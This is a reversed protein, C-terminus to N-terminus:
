GPVSDGGWPAAVITGAKIRRLDAAGVDVLLAGDAAIGAGIGVIQESLADVTLKRGLLWDYRAWEEAIGNFGDAEFNTIAAHLRNVLFSALTEPAPVEEAHSSLDAVPMARKAEHRLDLGDGLDLNLGVGTVVTVSGNAHTKAETLIGGLKRDEAILDNPWKVRIGHVDADQLSKIAGLGMALTLPALNDTAGAFTYAMSLCLGTGPPTLWTRGRRGRGATQNTTAAICLEGPRPGPKELLYSNTSAIEDFVELSVIKSRTAEKIGALISESDIVKTEPRRAVNQM